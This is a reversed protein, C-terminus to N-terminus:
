RVLVISAGITANISLVSTGSFGYLDINNDTALGYCNSFGIGGPLTGAGSLRVM